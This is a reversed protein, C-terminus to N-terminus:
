PKLEDVVSPTMIQSDIEPNWRYSFTWGLERDFHIFVPLQSYPHILIETPPFDKKNKFKYRVLDTNDQSTSKGEILVNGLLNSLNQPRAFDLVLSIKSDQQTLAEEATTHSVGNPGLVTVSDGEIWWTEPHITDMDFDVRVTDPSKWRVLHKFREGTENQVIIECEMSNTEQMAKIAASPAHIADIVGALPSQVGSLQIIALVLIGLSASAFALKNWISQGWASFIHSDSAQSERERENLRSRFEQMRKRMRDEIQPPIDGGFTERIRRDMADNSEELFEMM